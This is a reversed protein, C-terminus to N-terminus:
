ACEAIHLSTLQAGTRENYSERKQRLTPKGTGASTM